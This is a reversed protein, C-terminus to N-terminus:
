EDSIVTQGAAKRADLEARVEHMHKESIPTSLMVFFALIATIAPVIMYMMRMSNVTTIEQYRFIASSTYGSLNLMFGTLILTGALGAKTVWAYMAGFMGERRRGTKLEDIDCIDAIISGGLMFTSALGIGIFCLCVMQLYPTKPTYLYWSTSFGLMVFMLGAMFTKKKGIRGSLWTIFPLSSLLSAQFAVNGWINFTSVADKSLVYSATTMINELTEKTYEREIAALEHPEANDLQLIIKEAENISTQIDAMAPDLGTSSVSEVESTFKVVDSRKLLRKIDYFSYNNRLNKTIISSLTTSLNDITTEKKLSEMDTPTIAFTKTNYEKLSLIKTIENTKSLALEKVVQGARQVTVADIIKGAGQQHIVGQLKGVDHIASNTNEPGFVYNINVYLAFPNVLFIGLFMMLTVVCLKMFPGNKVTEKVSPGFAIKKQKQISIKERSMIAPTIACILIIIGFLVGVVRVGEVENDGFKMSLKWMVGLFLGSTASVFMNFAQVKTRENYDETLELGLAGWPIAFITYAIYYLISILLFYVAIWTTGLAVPPMWMLAFLIASLIGGILIYPRRRGFRSHTNDSIHGMIPDTIADVLRPIGMALGLIAPDLGLAIQYIPMALYGHANSLINSAASGTAWFGKQGFTLKGSPKTQSTKTNTDEPM